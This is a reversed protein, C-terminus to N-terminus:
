SDIQDDYLSPFVLGLVCQGNQTKELNVMHGTNKLIAGGTEARGGSTSCQHLALPM